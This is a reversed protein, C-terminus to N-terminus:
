WKRTFIVDALKASALRHSIFITTFGRSISEFQAYMQSEAVPDLAATPEDLIKIPAPSIIARAFALRQWEGGSLDIGAEHTKGLLTNKGSKLETSIKSFGSKDLANDIEEETAGNIKGIAVNEAVTIDYRAFDQFLVCFCAKIQSLTWNQLSQGNLLIEGTYNDYLRTLLKTLTTKGAGNVGVFSYHKGKEITLSLNDLILKDTGPYTFSVNKFELSEFIPPHEVPLAEANEVESLKEFHNIDKIFETQFSFQQFHYPLQWGIFQVTLFLAGQLAIFLGVTLSGNAVSPAMIFLGAASALGLVLASTKSRAYWLIYTKLRHKRYSEYHKEYKKSLYDSYNFIKRESATDRSTLIKNIHTAYRQDATAERTAQYEERGAKLAFIFMPTSLVLLIIGALPTNILLIVMYSITTAILGVLGLINSLVGCLQTVPNNWVRNLLDVTDKNEAHKYELRARKELFLVRLMLRTKLAIKTNLLEVFPSMMQQYITFITMAILPPIIRSTEQGETVVILATDIFHAFVLVSIPAIAAQILTHLVIVTAAITATRFPLTLAKYFTFKLDM